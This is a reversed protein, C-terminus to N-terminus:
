INERIAKKQTIWLFKNIGAKNKAGDRFTKCYSGTRKFGQGNRELSFKDALTTCKLWPM